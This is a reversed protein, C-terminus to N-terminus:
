LEIVRGVKAEVKVKSNLLSIEDMEKLSELSILEGDKLVQAYGIKDRNKPDISKYTDFLSDLLRKKHSILIDIARKFEEKQADISEKARSIKSDISFRKLSELTHTLEQSKKYLLQNINNNYQDYLNDLSILVENIDPLILEMANSPTAARLDACFDSIVFDIEHGVASVIPTKAEYIADAVVEENFAWLDEISGGGRGVIIIDAKLSDAIKINKAIMDSASEGQVTTDIVVIELLPWRKKAVRKMDEIAAGTKSTVIAVRKPFKPLNKKIDESFYGKEKLRKKLQEFALSLAGDGSPNASSVNIQYSGRPTYLTISGNLVLELGEEIKFKLRSASSKFMVCSITSNKDKLSFYIHGSSHYTVRSVEGVVSINQYHSEILSKIQNNLDSVTLPKQM